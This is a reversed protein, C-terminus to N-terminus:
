FRLIPPLFSDCQEKVDCYKSCKCTGDRSNLQNLGELPMEAMMPLLVDHTPTPCEMVRRFRLYNEEMRDVMIEDTLRAIPYLGCARTVDSCGKYIPVSELKYHKGPRHIEALRALINLQLTEGDGPPYVKPDYVVKPKTGKPDSDKPYVWKWSPCKHTKIDRILRQGEHIRDAVGSVLFGGLISTEPFVVERDWGPPVKLYEHIATGECRAFFKQPCAWWDTLRKLVHERFCGAAMSASYSTGNRRPSNVTEWELLAMTYVFDRNTQYKPAHTLEFHDLAAPDGNVIDVLPFKERCV